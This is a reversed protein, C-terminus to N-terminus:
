VSKIYMKVVANSKYMVFWRIRQTHLSKWSINKHIFWRLIAVSLPRFMYHLYYVNFWLYQQSRLDVFINSQYVRLLICLGLTLVWKWSTGLDPVCPDICDKGECAKM